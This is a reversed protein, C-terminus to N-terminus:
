EFPDGLAAPLLQGLVAKWIGLHLTVEKGVHVKALIIITRCHAVPGAAQRREAM